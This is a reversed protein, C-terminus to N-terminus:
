NRTRPVSLLLGCGGNTLWSMKCCM